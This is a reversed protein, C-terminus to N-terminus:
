YPKATYRIHLIVDTLTELMDLRDQNLNNFELVWTSTVGSGEFPLLREDEFNLTFLGSEDVGTSLAITQSQTGMGGSLMSSSQTLTACVDQYPGVLMPLSIGVSKIRRDGVNNYDPVFDSDEM